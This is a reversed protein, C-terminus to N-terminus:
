KLAFIIKKLIIIVLIECMFVRHLNSMLEYVYYRMVLGTGYLIFNQLKMVSISRKRELCQLAHVGFTLAILTGHLM